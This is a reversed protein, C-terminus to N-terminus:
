FENLLQQMKAENTHKNHNKIGIDLAKQAYYSLLKRDLILNELKHYLDEESAAYLTCENSTLYNISNVCNPGFSLICRGSFLYDVIKTSFSMKVLEIDKKDFSEINLLVDASRQLEVVEKFSVEKHFLVSKLKSFLRRQISNLENATYVDVTIQQGKCTSNLKDVVEGFKLLTKWRGYSINGTYLIKINANINSNTSDLQLNNVEHGRFIQIVKNGFISNLMKTELASFCVVKDAIGITKRIYYRLIVQNIYYFPSLRYKNFSYIDDGSNLLVKANTWKVLKYLLIHMYFCDYIPMYIIDPKFDTVFKKLNSNEWKRKTFFWILERIWLFIYLRYKKMTDYRAKEISEDINLTDINEFSFIKGVFDRTCFGNILERESICYYEKCLDINPVEDRCYVSICNDKDYFSFLNYTTNGTSTNSKLATRTLFLIRKM